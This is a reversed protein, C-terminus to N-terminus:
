QVPQKAFFKEFVNNHPLDYLQANGTKGPLFVRVKSCAPSSVILIVTNKGKTFRVGYKGEFPCRKINDNNYNSSKLVAKQLGAINEKSLVVPHIVPYAAIYKKSSDQETQKVPNTEITFAEVRNARKVVRSYRDFIKHRAALSHISFFATTLILLFKM